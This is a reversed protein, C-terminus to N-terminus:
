FLACKAYIVSLPESPSMLGLTHIINRVESILSCVDACLACRHTVNFALPFGITTGGGGVMVWWGEM